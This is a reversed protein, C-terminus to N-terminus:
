ASKSGRCRKARRRAKAHAVEAEIMRLRAIEVDRASIAVGLIIVPKAERDDGSSAFERETSSM